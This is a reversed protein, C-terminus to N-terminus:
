RRSLDLNLLLQAVRAAHQNASAASLGDHAHHHLRLISRQGLAASLSQHIHDGATLGVQKACHPSHKGCATQMDVKSAHKPHKSQIVARSSPELNAHVVFTYVTLCANQKRIFQM